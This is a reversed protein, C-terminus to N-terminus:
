DIVRRAVVVPLSAMLALMLFGLASPQTLGFALEARNGSVAPTFSLRLGAGVLLTLSCGVAPWLWRSRQRLAGVLVLWSLLLPIAYGALIQVLSVATEFWAPVDGAGAAAILLITALMSFTALGIIPAIVFVVGPRRSAISRFRPDQEMPRALMEVSGLRRCAEERAAQGSLGSAAVEEALYELHDRLEAIYRRTHQPSLGARLLREKLIHFRDPM